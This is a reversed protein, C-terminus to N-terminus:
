KEWLSILDNLLKDIFSQRHEVIFKKIYNVDYLTYKNEGQSQDRIVIGDKVLIGTHYFITSISLGLQNKIENLTKPDGEALLAIIRRRTKNRLHSFLIVTQKDFMNRPFYCNFGNIPFEIIEGQKKLVSIHYQLVGLSLNLGRQIARFHNGPYKQIYELIKERSTESSM